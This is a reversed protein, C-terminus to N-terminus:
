GDQTEMAEVSANRGTEPRAVRRGVQSVPTPGAAPNDTVDARRSAAKRCAPSCFRADQRKAPFPQGCVLCAHDATQMPMGAAVRTTRDFVCRWCAWSVLPLSTEKTATQCHRCTIIL